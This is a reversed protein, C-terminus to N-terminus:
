EPDWILVRTYEGAPLDDLTLALRSAKADFLANGNYFIAWPLDVACRRRGCQAPHEAPNQMPSGHSEQGRQPTIMRPLPSAHRARPPSHDDIVGPLMPRSGSRVLRDAGWWPRPM